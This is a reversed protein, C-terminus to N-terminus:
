FRRLVKKLGWSVELILPGKKNLGRSVKEIKQPGKKNEEKERTQFV